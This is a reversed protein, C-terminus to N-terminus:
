DFESRKFNESTTVNVCKICQINGTIQSQKLM